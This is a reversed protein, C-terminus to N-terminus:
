SRTSDAFWHVKIEVLTETEGIDRGELFYARYIADVVDGQHAGAEHAWTTLTGSADAPPCRPISSM